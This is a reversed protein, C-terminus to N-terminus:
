ITQRRRFVFRYYLAAFLVTWFGIEITRAIFIQNSTYYDYDDHGYTWDLLHAIRDRLTFLDHYNYFFQAPSFFLQGTPIMDAIALAITVAWYTLFGALAAVLLGAIRSRVRTLIWLANGALLIAILLDAGHLFYDLRFPIPKNILHSQFWAIEIALIFALIVMWTVPWQIRRLSHLQWEAPRSM